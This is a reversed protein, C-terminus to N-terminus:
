DSAYGERVDVPNRVYVETNAVFVLASGDPVALVLQSQGSSAIDLYVKRRVTEASRHYHM